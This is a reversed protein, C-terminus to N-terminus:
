DFRGGSFSPTRSESNKLHLADSCALDIDITASCRQLPSPDADRLVARRLHWARRAPGGGTDIILRTDLLARITKPSCYSPQGCGIADLAQRQASTRGSRPPRREIAMVVQRPPRTARSSSTPRTVVLVADLDAPTELAYDRMVALGALRPDIVPPDDTADQVHQLDSATPLIRGGRVARVGRDIVAVVPPGLATDPLAQKRLDCGCTWDGLLQHEISRVHLCM